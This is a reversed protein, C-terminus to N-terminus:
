QWNIDSFDSESWRASEIRDHRYTMYGPYLLLLLLTFGYNSWSSVDRKVQVHFTMPQRKYYAGSDTDILLRYYGEPVASFLSDKDLDGERWYYGDYDSGSYFELAQKTEKITDGQDNVLALELELWENNLSTYSSIAMNTQKPLQFQESSLTASKNTADIEFSSEYVTTNIATLASMVQIFTALLVALACSYWTRAVYEANYKGPQNAGIGIREPMESTLVFAKEIAKPEIYEGLALNIEENNKAISLMYPPAIYDTVYSEEDKRIRWYFEGKVYLVKTVGKQFRRYKVGDLKLEGSYGPEALSKKLVKFLTWHGKTQVLFRFGQYPNYLLYEDWRYVISPDSKEMYGVIEWMVGALRGKSGITLLTLRTRQQAVSIIRLNDNAVDIVSSCYACVATISHGVAKVTVSGACNPCKFTKPKGTRQQTQHADQAFAQDFHEAM